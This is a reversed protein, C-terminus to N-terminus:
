GPEDMSTIRDFAARRNTAHIIPRGIVIYDAGDQIAQAPSGHRKHDDTGESDPMRIGPVILLFDKPVWRRLYGVDQPSCIVGACGCDIAWRTRSDIFGSTSGDWNYFELLDTEDFSTLMPVALIKLDTGHAAKVAAKLLPPYAHVTALRFQRDGTMENERTALNRVAISVTTDIDLHKLDAFWSPNTRVEDPYGDQFDRDLLEESMMPDFIFHPGIKFMSCGPLEEVLARAETASNVDLAVIIKDATTM